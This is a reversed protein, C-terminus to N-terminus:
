SRTTGVQFDTTQVESAVDELYDLTNVYVVEPGFKEEELDYLEEENLPELSHEEILYRSRLFAVNTGPAERGAVKIHKVEFYSGSDSLFTKAKEPTESKDEALQQLQSSVETGFTWTKVETPDDAMDVVNMVFTWSARLKKRGAPPTLACLPCEERLCTYYRKKSNIYHRKYKVPPAADLLKLIRTGNDKLKLIPAKVTETREEQKAGWGSSVASSTATRAPRSPADEKETNYAEREVDHPVDM